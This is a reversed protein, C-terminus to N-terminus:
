GQRAQTHTHVSGPPATIQGKCFQSHNSESPAKHRLCAGRGATYSRVKAQGHTVQGPRHAVPPPRHLQLRRRHVARSRGCARRLRQFVCCVLLAVPLGLQGFPLPEVLATLHAGRESSSFVSPHSSSVAHRMHSVLIINTNQHRIGFCRQKAAWRREVARQSMFWARSATQQGRINTHAGGNASATFLPTHTHRLPRRRTVADAVAASPASVRRVRRRDARLGCTAGGDGCRGLRADEAVM